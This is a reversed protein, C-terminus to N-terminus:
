RDSDSTRGLEGCLDHRGRLGAGPVRLGDRVDVRGRHPDHRHADRRGDDVRRHRDPVGGPVKHSGDGHGLELRREHSHVRPRCPEGATSAPHADGRRSPAAHTPRRCAVASGGRGVDSDGSCKVYGLSRLPYAVCVGDLEIFDMVHGTLSAAPSLVMTVVGSQWQLSQVATSVGGVTFGAPDLAGNTGDAGVAAGIAVSDFLAEHLTGTPATVTVFVEHRKMEEEPHADCIVYVQPRYSYYFKYEGALLPRATVAVGPWRPHFLGEDRGVLRYEGWGSAPPVQGYVRLAQGAQTATYVWTEAPLGSVIAEDHRKYYYDGGMGEKRYRVEREWKYKEYLCDRYAESGGGAVAEREIEAIKAKVEGKSITPAM